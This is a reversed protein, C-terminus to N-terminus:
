LVNIMAVEEWYCYIYMCRQKRAGWPYRHLVEKFQQRTCIHRWHMNVSDRLIM